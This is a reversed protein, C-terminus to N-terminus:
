GDIQAVVEPYSTMGRFCEPEALIGLSNGLRKPINRKLHRCIEVEAHGAEPRAVISPGLIKEPLDQVQKFAIPAPFAKAEGSKRRHHGAPIQSPDEGVPARELFPDCVALFAEAERLREIVGVAQGERGPSEGREMDDLSFEAMGNGQEFTPHRHRALPVQGNMETCFM